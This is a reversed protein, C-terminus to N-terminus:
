LSEVLKDYDDWKYGLEKIFMKELKTAFLHERHYPAKPSNGPEATKSHLGRLRDKEFQADFADVKEWSVGRKKCLFSEIIEHLIVALQMYEDGFISVRYDISGDKNKWYDGVPEFKRQNNKPISKITIKPLKKM